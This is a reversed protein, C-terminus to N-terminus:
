SLHNLHGLEKNCFLLLVVVGIIITGGSDSYNPSYYLAVCSLSDGEGICHECMVRVAEENGTLACLCRTITLEMQLVYLYHYSIMLKFFQQYILCNDDM